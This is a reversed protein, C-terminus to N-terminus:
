SEAPLRVPWGYDWVAAISPDDLVREVREGRNGFTNDSLRFWGHALAVQVDRLIRGFESGAGVYATGYIDATTDRVKMLTERVPVGVNGIWARENASIARSEREARTRDIYQAYGRLGLVLMDLSSMASTLATLDHSGIKAGARRKVRLADLTLDILHEAAGVMVGMFPFFYPRADAGLDFSWRRPVEVPEGLYYSASGSSRLGIPDWDPAQRVKEAPLWLGITKQEGTTDSRVPRGASDWVMAGAIWRDAHYGGSGLRWRADDLRYKDGPIEVARALPTASFATPLDVSPYLETFSQDDLRGAIDGHASLWTAIWGMGVDIRAIQTVAELRDAYSADLGGREAPFCWRFVGTARLARGALPTTRSLRDSEPVEDRLLPKVREINRFVAETSTPEELGLAVIRPDDPSVDGHTVDARAPGAVSSQAAPAAPTTGVAPAASPRSRPRRLRGGRRRRIWYLGVGLVGAAALVAIILLAAVLVLLLTLLEDTSM